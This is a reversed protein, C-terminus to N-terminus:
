IDLYGVHIRDMPELRFGREAALMLKEKLSKEEEASLVTQGGFM